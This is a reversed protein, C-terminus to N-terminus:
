GYQEEKLALGARWCGDGTPASEVSAGIGGLLLTAGSIGIGSGAIATRSAGPSAIRNEIQVTVPGSEGARTRLVIDGEGHKVANVVLEHIARMAVGASRPSATLAVDLDAGERVLTRGIPVLDDIHQISLPATEDALDDVTTLVAILRRLQRHAEDTGHAAQTLSEEAEASIETMQGLRLRAAEINLGAVAIQNAVLDHLDHAIKQRLQQTAQRHEASMVTRTRQRESRVNWGWLAGILVILAWQLVVTVVQVSVGPWFLLTLATAAITGVITVLLTRVGRDGGYRFACYVFDAFLLVVGLSGGLFFDFAALPTGLVLVLFPRSSRLVALASMLILLLLFGSGTSWPGMAPFSLLAAWIGYGGFQLLLLGLVLYAVAVITDRTRPRANVQHIGWALRSWLM